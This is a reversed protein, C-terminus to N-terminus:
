DVVCNWMKALGMEVTIPPNANDVFTTEISGADGPDMKLTDPQLLKALREVYPLRFDAYCWLSTEGGSSPTHLDIGVDVQSKDAWVNNWINYALLEPGSGGEVAATGPFVRNVNTLWGSNHSTFYTRQNLYIGNPQRHPDRDGHWQSERGTTTDGGTGEDGTLGSALERESGGFTGGPDVERAAGCWHRPWEYNSPYSSRIFASHTSRPTTHSFILLAHAMLHYSETPM